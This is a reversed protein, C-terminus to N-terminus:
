VAGGYAAGQRAAQSAAQPQPFQRDQWNKM